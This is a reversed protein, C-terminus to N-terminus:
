SVDVFVLGSLLQPSRSALKPLTREGLCKSYRWCLSIESHCLTLPLNQWCPFSGLASRPCVLEPLFFAPPLPPAVEDKWNAEYGSVAIPMCLMWKWWGRWHICHNCVNMFQSPPNYAFLIDCSVFLRMNWLLQKKAQAPLCYLIRPIRARLQVMGKLRHLICTRLQSKYFLHPSFCFFPLHSIAEFLFLFITEENKHHLFFYIEKKGNELFAIFIPFTFWCFIFIFHILLGSMILLHIFLLLLFQGALGWLIGETFIWFSGGVM